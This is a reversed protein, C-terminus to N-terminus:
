TLLKHSNNKIYDAARVAIAQISNTPVLSGGTTFVSGDVIFLNKVDHARNNGDIVSRRPDTGMRATGLYHGPAATGVESTINKAGAAELVQKCREVGFAFIKQTNESRKYHLKVGPIGVDDTLSSDLELRNEESPLEDAFVSMGVTRKFQQQFATHHLRGWEIPRSRQDSRLAAPIVTAAPEHAENLATSIPPGFGGVLAWFGRAFGRSPDGEYFQDSVLGVTSQEGSVQRDDDFSGVVRVNPHGMLCKGVMGSSNALGDPFLKSKSNLLLRPTGIGNCAVVVIRAKQTTLHGDADYYLAGDALGQKNVTIERVRARTKLTVGNHIAEPWFVVDSSNKAERPCGNDCAACNTPCPKRGHLPETIIARYVPWWHWHLKDYGRSLMEAARSLKPAPQLKPSMPPYAPNGPVGSVGVWEDVMDYYPVLDWYRIPWDDAV